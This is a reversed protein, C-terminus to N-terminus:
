VRKQKRTQTETKSEYLSMGKSKKFFFFFV